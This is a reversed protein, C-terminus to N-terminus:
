QKIAGKVMNVAKDMENSVMGTMGAEARLHAGMSVLMDARMKLADSLARLIRFQRQADLEKVKADLVDSDLKVQADVMAETAKGHEQILVARWHEYSGAEEVERDHKARAADSEAEAVANAIWAYLSAQSAFENSLNAAEIAMIATVDIKLGNAGRVILQDSSAKENKNM